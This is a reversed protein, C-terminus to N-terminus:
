DDAPASEDAPACECSGDSRCGYCNECLSSGCTWCQETPHARYVPRDSQRRLHNANFTLMPVEQAKRTIPATDM